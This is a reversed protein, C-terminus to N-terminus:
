KSFCDKSRKQMIVHRMGFTKKGIAKLKAVNTIIKKCDKTKM